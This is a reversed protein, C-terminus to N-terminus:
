FHFLVKFLTFIYNAATAIVTCWQEWWNLSPTRLLTNTFNCYNLTDATGQSTSDKLLHHVQTCLVGKMNSPFRLVENNCNCQEFQLELSVTGETWWGWNATVCSQIYFCKGDMFTRYIVDKGYPWCLFQPVCGEIPKWPSCRAVPRWVRWELHIMSGGALVRVSKLLFM